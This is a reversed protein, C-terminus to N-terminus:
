DQINMPLVSASASVGISQGHSFCVRQFLGQHQSLNFVPSYPSSLPHSSQIADGVRHVLTQTLERLQYHAPFGPRSCEMPKCLTPCLQTVSSFQLTLPSVLLYVNLLKHHMTNTDPLVSLGKLTLPCSILDTWM